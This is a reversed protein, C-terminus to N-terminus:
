CHDVAVVIRLVSTKITGRYNVCGADYFVPTIRVLVTNCNEGFGHEKGDRSGM